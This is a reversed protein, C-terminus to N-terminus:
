TCTRHNLIRSESSVAPHWYSLVQPPHVSSEDSNKKHVNMYVRTKASCYVCDLCGETLLATQKEASLPMAAPQHYTLQRFHRSFGNRVM